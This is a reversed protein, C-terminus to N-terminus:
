SKQGTLLPGFKRNLSVQSVFGDLPVCQVVDRTIKLLRTLLCKQEYIYTRPSHLNAPGRLMGPGRLM